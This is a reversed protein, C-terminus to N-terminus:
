PVIVPMGAIEGSKEDYWAVRSPYSWATRSMGRGMAVATAARADAQTVRLVGVGADAAWRTQQRGLSGAEPRTNLLMSRSLREQVRIGM